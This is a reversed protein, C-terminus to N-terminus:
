QKTYLIHMQINDSSEASCSIFCKHFSVPPKIPCCIRLKSLFRLRNDPWLATKKRVGQMMERLPGTQRNYIFRPFVSCQVIHRNIVYPEIKSNKQQGSAICRVNWKRVYQNAFLFKQAIFFWIASEHLIM